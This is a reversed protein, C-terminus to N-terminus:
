QVGFMSCHLVQTKCRKECNRVVTTAAVAAYISVLNLVIIEAYLLTFSNFFFRIEHVIVLFFLVYIFFFLLFNCVFYELCYCLQLLCGALFNCSLLFYGLLFWNCYSFIIYNYVIVINTIQANTSKKFSVGKTHTHIHTYRLQM